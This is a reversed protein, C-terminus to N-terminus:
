PGALGRGHGGSRATPPGPLSQRQHRTEPGDRPIGISHNTLIRDEFIGARKTGTRFIAIRQDIVDKYRNSGDLTRSLATLIEVTLNAGVIIQGEIDGDMDAYKELYRRWLKMLYRGSKGQGPPYVM